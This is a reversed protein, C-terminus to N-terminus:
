SSMAYENVDLYFEINAPFEVEHVEVVLRTMTRAAWREKAPLEAPIHTAAIHHFQELREEFGLNTALVKDSDSSELRLAGNALAMVQIFSEDGLSVVAYADRTEVLLVILKELLEFFHEATDVRISQRGEM